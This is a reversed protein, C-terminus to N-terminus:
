IVKRYNQTFVAVTSAAALLFAFTSGWGTALFGILSIPCAVFCLFASASSIRKWFRKTFKKFM